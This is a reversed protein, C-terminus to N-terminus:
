YWNIKQLFDDSNAICFAIYGHNALKAIFVTPLIFSGMHTLSTPLRTRNYIGYDLAKESVIAALVHHTICM